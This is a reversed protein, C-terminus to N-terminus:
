PGRRVIRVTLAALAISPPRSGFAIASRITIRPTVTVPAPSKKGVGNSENIGPTSTMEVAMVCRTASSPMM